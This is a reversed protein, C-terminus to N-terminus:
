LRVFSSPRRGFLLTECGRVSPGFAALALLEALRQALWDPHSKRLLWTALTTL